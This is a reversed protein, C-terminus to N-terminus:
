LKDFISSVHELLVANKQRSVNSLIWSRQLGGCVRSIDLLYAQFTQILLLMICQHASQQCILSTAMITGRQRRIISNLSCKRRFKSLLEDFGKITSFFSTLSNCFYLIQRNILRCFTLKLRQQSRGNGPNESTEMWWVSM